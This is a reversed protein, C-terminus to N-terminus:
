SQEVEFHGPLMSHARASSEKHYRDGGKISLIQDNSIGETDIQKIAVIRNSENLIGKYVTSSGGKGVVKLQEYKGLKWEESILGKSPSLM